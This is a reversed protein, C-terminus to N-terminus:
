YQKVKTRYSSTRWEASETGDAWLITRKWAIQSRSLGGTGAISDETQNSTTFPGALTVARGDNTGYFEIIADKADNTKARVLIPGPTNNVFVLDQSGPYITSDLGDGYAEYYHVYLSHNKQKKIELGANMAARYMTTSTQCIGGGPVKKLDTGNFIALSAQWGAAYTVPGLISNFAFEAGQPIVLNNIKEDMAKKVNFERGAPSTAYNSIGTAILTLEGLDSGSKNVISGTENELTATSEWKGQSVDTKIQALTQEANLKKGDKVEGETTAHNVEGTGAALIVLDSAPTVSSELTSMVYNLFAENLSLTGSQSAKQIALDKLQAPFALSQGDMSVKLGGTLLETVQTTLPSLDAATILDPTSSDITYSKLDPYDGTIQELLTDVDFEVGTVESELQVVGNEVTFHANKPLDAGWYQRILDESRAASWSFDYHDKSDNEDFLSISAMLSSGLNALENAQAKVGLQYLNLTKSEGLLSLEFATQLPDEDDQAAVLSGHLTGVLLSLTLLGLAGRKLSSSM